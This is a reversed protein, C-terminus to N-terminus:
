KKTRGSTRCRRDSGLAGFPAAGERGLLKRKALRAIGCRATGLAAAPILPGEEVLADGVAALNLLPAGLFLLPDDSPSCRTAELQREKPLQGPSNARPCQRGQGHMAQLLDSSRGNRPGLRTAQLSVGSLFLAHM